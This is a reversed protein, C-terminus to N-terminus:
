RGVAALDDSLRLALLSHSIALQTAAFDPLTVTLQTEVRFDRNDAQNLLMNRVGLADVQHAFQTVGNADQLTFGGPMSASPLLSSAAVVNERLTGDPTWTFHTELILAGDSFTRAVAGFQAEIGTPLLFGGRMDQLEDASLPAADFEDAHASGMSVLALAAIAAFAAVTRRM